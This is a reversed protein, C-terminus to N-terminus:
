NQAEEKLKDSLYSMLSSDGIWTKEQPWDDGNWKQMGECLKKEDTIIKITESDLDNCGHNSFVDSALDLMKAALLLTQKDM